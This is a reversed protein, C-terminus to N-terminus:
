RGIRPGTRFVRQMFNSLRSEKRRRRRRRHNNNLGSGEDVSTNADSAVGPQSPEGPSSEPMAFSDRTSTSTTAASSRTISSTNFKTSLTLVVSDVSKILAENIQDVFQDPDSGYPAYHRIRGKLNPMVDRQLSDRTHELCPVVEEQMESIATPLTWDHLTTCRQRTACAIAYSLWTISLAHGVDEGTRALSYPNSNIGSFLRQGYRLFDGKTMIQWVDSMVRIYERLSPRSIYIDTIESILTIQHYVVVLPPFIPFPPQYLDQISARIKTRIVKAAVEDLLGFTPQIVKERATDITRLLDDNLPHHHLVEHLDHAKQRIAASQQDTLLRHSSLRKIYHILYRLHKTMRAHSSRNGLSYGRAQLIRHDRHHLFVSLATGCILVVLLGILSYGMWPERRYLMVFLRLFEVSILFLLALLFLGVVGRILSGVKVFLRYQYM